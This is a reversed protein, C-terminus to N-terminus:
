KCRRIFLHPFIVFLVYFFVMGYLHFFKAVHVTSPFFILYYYYTSSFILFDASLGGAFISYLSTARRVCMGVCHRSFSLVNSIFCSWVHTQFGTLRFPIAMRFQFHQTNHFADCLDIYLSCGFMLQTYWWRSIAPFHTSKPM